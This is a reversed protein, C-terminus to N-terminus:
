TLGNFRRLVTVPDPAAQADMLMRFTMPVTYQGVANRKPKWETDESVCNYYDALGQNPYFQFSSGALAFAEFSAWAEADDGLRIAPLEFSILIPMSEVVRERVVGSTSVNDHVVPAWYPMFNMPGRQFVLTTPGTGWVVKPFNATM